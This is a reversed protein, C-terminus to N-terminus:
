IKYDHSIPLIALTGNRTIGKIDSLVEIARLGTGAYTNHNVKMRAGLRMVNSTSGYNSIQNYVITPYSAADEAYIAYIGSNNIQNGLGSAGIVPASNNGMYIGTMNKPAIQAVWQLFRPQWMAGGITMIIFYTSLKHM